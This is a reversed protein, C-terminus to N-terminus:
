GTLKGFEAEIQADLQDKMSGGVHSEETPVSAVPPLLFSASDPTNACRCSLSLEVLTLLRIESKQIFSTSRFDVLCM